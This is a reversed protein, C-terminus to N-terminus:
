CQVIALTHKKLSQNIASMVAKSARETNLSDDRYEKLELFERWWYVAVTTNTDYVTVDPDPNGDAKFSVKCAKFSKDTLPMGVKLQFDEEDIIASHEVKIGLYYPIENETYYFQLFSGRKLHERTGFRATMEEDSAVEKDLLRKALNEAFNDATLNDNIGEQYMRMLSTSLETTDRLFTYRRKSQKATIDGQLDDLYRILETAEADIPLFTVNRNNISIRHMSSAIIETPM